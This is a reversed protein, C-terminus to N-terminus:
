FRMSRRVEAEISAKYSEELAKREKTLRDLKREILSVLIQINEDNPEDYQKGYYKLLQEEVIEIRMGLEVIQIITSKKM